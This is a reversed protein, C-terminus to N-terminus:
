RKETHSKWKMKSSEVCNLNEKRRCAWHHLNWTIKQSQRKRWGSMQRSRLTTARIMWCLPGSLQIGITNSWGTKLSWHRKHRSQRKRETRKPAMMRPTMSVVVTPFPSGQGVFTVSAALTQFIVHLPSSLCNIDGIFKHMAETHKRSDFIKGCGLCNAVTREMVGSPTSQHSPDDIELHM